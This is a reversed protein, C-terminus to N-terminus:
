SHGVARLWHVYYQSNGVRQWDVTPVPPAEESVILTAGAKQFSEIVKKQTSVDAKWFDNVLTEPHERVCYIEAIIPVRALRAWTSIRYISWQLSAVRDDPQLGLGYMKKVVEAPMNPDASARGLLQQAFDTLHATNSNVPFLFMLLILAAVASFLRSSEPSSPLRVGFFLCLVLIVIFPALYRPEVHVLAYMGLAISSPILVYWYTLLDKVLLWKRGSYCILVFLGGIVSGNLGLFFFSEARLLKVITALTSRLEFRMRVGDYWYSPDTWAPYTGGLPSGFEFAAPQDFIKRTGHIPTGNGPVEGQWHSPPLGNVHVVYNYRGSDGFTLRGKSASLALIFPVSVAAFTILSIVVRPRQRRGIILAIALCILAIPFMISKTLYGLGLALGLGAYTFSSAGGRRIKLLLACALYFFAAVLMDPNTESVGILSLSSWMFLSYGIILWTRVPVTWQGEGQQEKRLMLFERLVLDFCWLAFLYILFMVLHVLPYEWYLSPRLWGVAAGLIVSFLPGWLGNVAASWHGHWVADGIDLYSVTDSILTLRSVWAQLLGLTGALVFFVYRIRADSKKFLFNGTILSTM